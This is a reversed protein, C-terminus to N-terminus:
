ALIGVFWWPQLQQQTIQIMNKKEISRTWDLLSIHLRDDQQAVGAHIYLILAWEGHRATESLKIKANITEVDDGPYYDNIQIACRSECCRGVGAGM